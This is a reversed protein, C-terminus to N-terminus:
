PETWNLEPEFWLESSFKVMVVPLHLTSLTGVLRFGNSTTSSYNIMPQDQLAALCHKTNWHHQLVSGNVQLHLDLSCVLCFWMGPRWGRWYYMGVCRCWLSTTFLQHALRCAHWDILNSFGLHAMLYYYVCLVIQQVLVPLIFLWVFMTDSSLIILQWFPWKRIASNWTQHIEGITSLPQEHEQSEPWYDWYPGWALLEWTQSFEGAPLQPLQPRHGSLQFQEYYVDGCKGWGHCNCHTPISWTSAAWTQMQTTFGMSVVADPTSKTM